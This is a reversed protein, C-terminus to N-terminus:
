EVIEVQSDGEKEPTAPTEPTQPEDATKKQAGELIPQVVRVPVTLPATLLELTDIPKADSELQVKVIRGRTLAPTVFDRVFEYAVGRYQDFPGGPGFAGGPGRGVMIFHNHALNLFDDLNDKEIKLGVLSYALLGDPVPVNVRRFARRTRQYEDVAAFQEPTTLTPLRTFGETSAGFGPAREVFALPNIIRELRPGGGAPAVSVARDGFHTDRPNVFNIFRGRIGELPLPDLRSLSSGMFVVNRVRDMYPPYEGVVAQTKGDEVRGGFAMQTVRTGASFAVISVSAEDWDGHRHAQVNVMDQLMAAGNMQAQRNTHERVLDTSESWHVPLILLTPHEGPLLAFQSEAILRASHRFAELTDGSGEAFLVLRTDDLPAESPYQTDDAVLVSGDRQRHVFVFAQAGYVRALTNATLRTSRVEEAPIRQRLKPDQQDQPPACGAGLAIAVLAVFALERAHRMM